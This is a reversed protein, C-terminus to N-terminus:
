NENTVGYKFLFNLLEALTNAEVSVGPSLQATYRVGTGVTYYNINPM